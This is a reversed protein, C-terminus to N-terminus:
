KQGGLGFALANDIVYTPSEPKGEKRYKYGAPELLAKLAEDLAVDVLRMTVKKVFINESKNDLALYASPKFGDTKYYNVGSISLFQEILEDDSAGNAQIIFRWDKSEEIRYAAISIGSGSISQVSNVIIDAVNTKGKDTVMRGGSPVLGSVAIVISAASSAPFNYFRAGPFQSSGLTGKFVWLSDSGTSAYLRRLAQDVTSAPINVTVKYDTQSQASKIDPLPNETGKKETIIYVENDIKYTLDVTGLLADLAQKLGAHDIKLTVKFDDFLESMPYGLIYSKGFGKFIQDLAQKMSVNKLDVSITQVAPASVNPKAAQVSAGSFICIMVLALIRM